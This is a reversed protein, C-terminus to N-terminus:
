EAKANEKLFAIVDARDQEDKLKLRMNGNKGARSKTFKLPNTLYEDLLKEDWVVDGEAIKKFAKSYKFKEISGLKRGIIGILHPGLKKKDKNYYHCAACRGFVKKGAKADGEAARAAFPPGVLLTALVLGGIITRM